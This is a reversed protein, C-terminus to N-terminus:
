DNVGEVRQGAELAVICVSPASRFTVRAGRGHYAREHKFAKGGIVGAVHQAEIAVFFAGAGDGVEDVFGDLRCLGVGGVEFQVVAGSPGDLDIERSRGVFRLDKGQDLGGGVGFRRPRRAKRSDGLLVPHLVSKGSQGWDAGAAHQDVARMIPSPPACVVDADLDLRRESESGAM